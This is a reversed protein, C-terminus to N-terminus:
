PHFIISLERFFARVFSSYFLIVFETQLAIATVVRNIGFRSYTSEPFYAKINSILKDWVNQKSDIYNFIITGGASISRRCLEWFRAEYVFDPVELDHFIDVIVLDYRTKNNQLYERADACVPNIRNLTEDDFLELSWQLSTTDHDVITIDPRYGKKNLIMVASGLGTGLVLVNKVNPLVQEIKKFAFVLPRYRTGDSYLANTTSLQWQNRYLSVTLSTNNVGKAKKITVPVLYSLIKQAYNVRTIM